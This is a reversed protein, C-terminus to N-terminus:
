TATAQALRALSNTPNQNAALAQPELANFDDDHFASAWGGKPIADQPARERCPAAPAWGAVTPAGPPKYNPGFACGALTTAALFAAAALPLWRVPARGGFGETQKRLQM